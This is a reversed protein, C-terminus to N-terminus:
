AAGGEPRLLKRRKPKSDSEEEGKPKTALAFAEMASAVDESTAPCGQETTRWPLALFASTLMALPVVSAMMNGSIGQM